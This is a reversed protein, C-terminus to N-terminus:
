SNDHMRHIEITERYADNFQRLLAMNERLKHNEAQLRKNREKLEKCERVYCILIERVESNPIDKKM